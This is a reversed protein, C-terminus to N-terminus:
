HATAGAGTAYYSKVTRTHMVILIAVPYICAFLGSIVAQTVMMTNGFALPPGGGAPGMAANLAAMMSRTVAWSAWATLAAAPLKLGAWILHGRRGFPADRFVQIGLVLLFVALALGVAAEGIALAATPGDLGPFLPAAFAVTTGTTATTTPGTAPTMGPPPPAAVPSRVAYLIAWQVASFGNSLVGLAGICISIVGVATLIGPRRRVPRSYDLAVLPMGEASAAPLPLPLPQIPPANESPPMGSSM